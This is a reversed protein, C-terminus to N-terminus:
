MNIKNKYNYYLTLCKTSAYKILSAIDPSAKLEKKTPITIFRYM